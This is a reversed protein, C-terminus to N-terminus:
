WMRSGRTIAFAKFLVEQYGMVATERYHKVLGTGAQNEKYVAEMSDGGWFRIDASSDQAYLGKMLKSGHLDGSAEGAIIYYKM